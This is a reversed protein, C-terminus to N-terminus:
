LFANALKQSFSIAETLLASLTKELTPADRINFEFERLTHQQLRYGVMRYKFVGGASDLSIIAGHVLEHRKPSLTSIRTLLNRGESAYPALLPLTKFSQKLFTIKRKLSHPVNEYGRVSNGGCNNFSVNVWNDIQQEILAWDIVVFGIAECLRTFNNARGLLESAEDM